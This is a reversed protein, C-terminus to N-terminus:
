SDERTLEEVREIVEMGRSSCKVMDSLFLALAAELTIENRTAITQGEDNLFEFGPQLPITLAGKGPFIGLGATGPVIGKRRMWASVSRTILDSRVPKEFFVFLQWEDSDSAKYLRTKEMGAEALCDKLKTMGGARYYCDEDMTIVMFRTLADSRFSRQIDSEGALSEFIEEDTLYHYRSTERWEKQEDRKILSAFRNSLTSYFFNLNQAFVDPNMFRTGGPDFRVASVDGEFAGDPESLEDSEKAKLIKDLQQEVSSRLRTEAESDDSEEESMDESEEELEITDNETDDPLSEMIHDYAEEEYGMKAAKMELDMTLQYVSKDSQMDAYDPDPASSSNSPSYAM